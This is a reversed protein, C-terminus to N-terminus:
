IVRFGGVDGSRSAKHRKLILIGLLMFAIIAGMMLLLLYMINM